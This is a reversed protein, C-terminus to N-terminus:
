TSSMRFDLALPVPYEQRVRERLTDDLTLGEQTSLRRAHLELWLRSLSREGERLDELVFPKSFLHMVQQFDGIELAAWGQLLRIRGAERVNESLQPLLALWQSPYGADILGQGCEAALPLLDPRARCAAIYKEAAEALRHDQKALVALNRTAWPTRHQQLSAEWAQKAGAREGAYYRMVGLHLWASWNNGQQTHVANELRTRWAEQVMFSGPEVEPDLEPFAGTNLLTIWPTQAESLSEVDFVLADSCFPPEGSTVRRLRELTGWGSGRQFVIDPPQDAFDASRVFEADFARRPVLHELQEAVAHRAESWDDGHVATPDADLMGYGELWSWESRPPMPIHELQTQTLGAQIEIYNLEKHSLFRQWQRGGKGMGWAFLKRGRLRETSVQILGRGEQDLAAIWPRYGAPLNFFFDASHDLNTPYTIDTGEIVPISVLGLGAKGYGFRFAANAPMVVRTGPTETVATNSWWYMPIKHPHPNTIRVRVLLVPSDDPLYADIQFPVQRIREWEYLRLIPTGDDGRVLAAYLPACTFPSHGITGINWEVGGSFWANRIALNAPQFVPNVALLERHTPKHILSWLRGGLELLFTARLINNELVAVRFERPALDRTYRDQMTYPLPNPVRGYTLNRTIAHPIGPTYQPKAHIEQAVGLPPLPNEPGLEAAPMTLTEIKLESM